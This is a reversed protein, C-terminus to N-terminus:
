KCSAFNCRADGAGANARRFRLATLLAERPSGMLASVMHYKVIPTPYRFQVSNFSNLLATTAERLLTRYVDGKGHLGEWLTMETGYREAAPLGFALAVKTQPFVIKWYCRYEPMLWNLYPCASAQFSPPLPPFKVPPRPPPLLKPTNAPPPLQFVPPAPGGSSGSNQCFSMPKAPQSILSDVRYMDMNFLSFFLDLSQAPGAAAGCGSSSGPVVQAVCNKLDPSGSFRVAYNGFWNTTAETLVTMQGDGGPCAVAVKAGSLPYDFLTMEGDRCQDCIVSGTVMADGMVKQAACLLLLFAAVQLKMVSGM